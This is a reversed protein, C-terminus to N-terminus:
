FLLLINIIDLTILKLIREIGYCIDNFFTYFICEPYNLVPISNLARIIHESADLYENRLCLYKEGFPQNSESKLHEILLYFIRL